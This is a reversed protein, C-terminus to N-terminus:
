LRVAIKKRKVKKDAVWSTATSPQPRVISDFSFRSHAPIQLWAPAVAPTKIPLETNRTRSDSFNQM